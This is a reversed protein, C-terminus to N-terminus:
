DRNPQEATFTVDVAVGEGQFDNSTDSDLTFQLTLSIDDGDSLSQTVEDFPTATAFDNLTTYDGSYDNEFTNGDDIRLTADDLLLEKAFATGTKNGADGSEDSVAIDFDFEATVGGNYTASMTKKSTQEGPYLDDIDFRGTVSNLDMTGATVENTTTEEDFFYASTGAGAAAAAAGVTVIGGLVRRRNLEITNNDDSM